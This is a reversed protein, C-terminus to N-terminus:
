KSTQDNPEKEQKDSMCKMHSMHENSDDSAGSKAMPCMSMHHQFDALQSQVKEMATRLSQLDRQERAEALTKSMQDVLAAIESQHKQCEQMLDSSAGQSNSHDHQAFALSGSMVVLLAFTSFFVTTGSKMIEGKQTEDATRHISDPRDHNRVKNM